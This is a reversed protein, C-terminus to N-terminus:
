AKEQAPPFPTPRDEADPVVILCGAREPHDQVWADGSLNRILWLIALDGGALFTFILGFAAIMAQATLIGLLAPALGLLLLPMAAGWRYVRARLPVRVHAYPTFTKAQFGFRIRSLPLRAFAAWTLGHILEHALVGLVIAPLFAGISLLADVGQGLRSFGWVWGFALMELLVLPGSLVVLYLVAREMSISRDELVRYGTASDTM